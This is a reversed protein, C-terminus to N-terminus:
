GEVCPNRMVGVGAIETELVMGDRLFVPPTRSEGTGGPTGTFILDGPEFTMFRNLWAVLRPVPFILDSTRGHQMQRGELRGFLEIDDPDALEDPSLMVPGIPGFTDYSKAMTFQKLPPRFQEGRDSIDQGGTVGAVHDWVAAPEIGKCRRGIVVVVETEFDIMDLGPPIRIPDYPGTVCNPFKAFLHPEDPIPKNSEEAHSRYNLAIAVVKSPRPVPPGLSASDLEPLGEPDGTELLVRLADHHGLDSLVMPDSALAGGSAQEVDLVRQEVLLSSRGEVNALRM